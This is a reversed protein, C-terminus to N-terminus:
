DNFHQLLSRGCSYQLVSKDALLYKKVRAPANIGVATLRHTYRDRVVLKGKLTIKGFFM